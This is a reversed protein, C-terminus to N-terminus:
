RACRRGGGSDPGAGQFNQEADIRLPAPGIQTWQVGTVSSAKAAVQSSGAQAPRSSVSIGAAIPMKKANQMGLAWLDPRARGKADSHRRLFERDQAERRQQQGFLGKSSPDPPAASVPVASIAILTLGFMLTRVSEYLQKRTRM